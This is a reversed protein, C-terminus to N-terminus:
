GDPIEAEVLLTLLQLSEQWGLHCAEIPIEDPIGNQSIQVVTGVASEQLEVLLEMSGPLGPDDFSDTSRIRQNPVLELYSGGFSHETGTSINIFSMRFRGGERPDFEDVRAVFGHPPNWKVLINQDLFARYIREAPARIVRSLQMNNPM